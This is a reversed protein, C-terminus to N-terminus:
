RKLKSQEFYYRFDIPRSIHGRYQLGNAARFNNSRLKPPQNKFRYRLPRRKRRPTASTLMSSSNCERSVSNVLTQRSSCTVPSVPGSRQSAASGSSSVFLASQWTETEWLEGFQAVRAPVPLEDSVSYKGQKMTM